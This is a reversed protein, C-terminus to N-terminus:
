EAIAANETLVDTTRERSDALTSAMDSKSISVADAPYIVYRGEVSSPSCFTPTYTLSMLTTQSSVLDKELSINVLVGDKHMTQGMSSIFNGLSYLVPVSGGDTEVAEFPQTCHPHSGLIIDAGAEAIFAAAKRQARNPKHTHESGWHVCVIVYDAGAQRAAAIDSTVLHKDYRDIMFACNSGPRKNIIDTYALVSVNIGNVDIVLPVRDAENVYAGTHSFGYEDLKQLTKTLGDAKYDYMHNNATTLVDFGSRSLAALFSEPANIRPSPRKTPSPMAAPDTDSAPETPSSGETDTTNSNETNDADANPQTFPYDAAILTELNGIALDAASLKGKIVAFCEDFSYEAGSRAAALQASLCLLDGAVAITAQAPAPTPTSTPIPTSECLSTNIQTPTPTPKPTVLVVTPEPQCGVGFFLLLCLAVLLIRKM